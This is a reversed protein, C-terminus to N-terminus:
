DPRPEITVHAAEVSRLRAALEAHADLLAALAGLRRGAAADHPQAVLQARLEDDLFGVAELRTAGRAFTREGLLADLRERRMRRRADALARAALVFRSPSPSTVFGDLAPLVSSRADASLAPWTRVALTALAAGLRAADSM